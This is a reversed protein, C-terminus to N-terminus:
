EIFPKGYLHNRREALLVEPRPRRPRRARAPLPHVFIGVLHEDGARRGLHPPRDRPRAGLHPHVDIGACVLIQGPAVLCLKSATAPRRTRPPMRNHHTPTQNPPSPTRRQTEDDPPRLLREPRHYHNVRAQGTDLQPPPTWEVEGRSNITTTWGGEGVMRNDPGCALGLEDVNTNGGDVWDAVVHHVQSGYPGVTCCPKTCGGDRSILM